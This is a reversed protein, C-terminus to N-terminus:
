KQKKADRTCAFAQVEQRMVLTSTKPRAEGLDGTGVGAMPSQVFRDSSSAQAASGM